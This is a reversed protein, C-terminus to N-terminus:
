SEGDGKEDGKMKGEELQLSRHGSRQQKCVPNECLADRPKSALRGKCEVSTIREPMNTLVLNIINGRVQPPSTSWKLWSPTM